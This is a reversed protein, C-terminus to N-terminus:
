EVPATFVNWISGFVSRKIFKSLRGTSIGKELILNKWLYNPWEGSAYFLRSPNIVKPPALPMTNM